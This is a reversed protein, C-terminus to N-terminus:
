SVLDKKMKERMRLLKEDRQCCAEFHRIAMGVTAYDLGGAQKGIQSLTMGTTRRALWLALDRGWDGHRDRFSGWGEGKEKEVKRIVDEMRARERYARKGAM